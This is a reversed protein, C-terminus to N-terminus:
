VANIRSLIEASHFLLGRGVGVANRIEGLVPVNAMFCQNSPCSSLAHWPRKHQGIADDVGQKDGNPAHPLHLLHVTAGRKSLFRAFDRLAFRVEPKDASDSDFALV